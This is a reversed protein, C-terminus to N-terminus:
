NGIALWYFGGTVGFSVDCRYAFGGTTVATAYVTHNSTGSPLLVGFTLSFVAVSFPSTVNPFNVIGSVGPNTVFGWQLKIGGYISSYGPTAGQAPGTFLPLGGIGSTSSNVAWLVSQGGDAKAFLALDGGALAPAVSNFMTVKKHFGGNNNGFSFHDVDIISKISNTNIKMPPQDVSPDNNTAPIDITYAFNPM